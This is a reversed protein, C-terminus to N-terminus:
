TGVYSSQDTTANIHGYLNNLIDNRSRNPRVSQVARIIERRLVTAIYYPLVLEDVDSPRALPRITVTHPLNRLRTIQIDYAPNMILGQGPQRVTREYTIRRGRNFNPQRNM